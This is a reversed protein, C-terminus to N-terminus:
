SNFISQGGSPNNYCIGMVDENEGNNETCVGTSGIWLIVSDDIAWGCTNKNAHNPHGLTSNHAAGCGAAISQTMNFHEMVMFPKEYKKKM